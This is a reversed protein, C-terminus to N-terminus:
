SGFYVEPADGDHPLNCPWFDMSRFFSPWAGCWFVMALWQWEWRNAPHNPPGTVAKPGRPDLSSAIAM